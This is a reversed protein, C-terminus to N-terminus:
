RNGFGNIKGGLKKFDEFFLPYSKNIAKYGYIETNNASYAALVSFAMVIRHDGTGDVKGGASVGGEIIMGDPQETVKIGMALLGDVVTRIRDTEKIRLREGGFIITKGQSLAATVALAPVMDPIQSCNIDIGKLKGSKVYLCNNKIEIDAGFAKFIEIAAMDGQTSDFDLGTIKINGGLAGAALFFAAQSWDGEVRSNKSTFEGKASYVGGNETIQIGFNSMIQVTLDIYGASQLPTTLQATGGNIGIAFLLGTLYQSSVNGSVPYAGKELRGKITLPLRNSSCSVGFASLIDTLADIPREPLRGHGVFTANAGLAAAIPIMFRLTSGSEGCDITVKKNLVMERDIGTIHFSGNKELIEAGLATVARITADIDESHCIPSVVSLGKALAACIINRHAASKSSPIQVEGSLPSPSLHISEMNFCGTKM